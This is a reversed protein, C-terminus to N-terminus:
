LVHPQVGSYETHQRLSDNRGSIFVADAAFLYTLYLEHCELAETYDKASFVVAKLSNFPM